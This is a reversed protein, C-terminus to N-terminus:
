VDRSWDQKDLMGFLKHNAKPFTYDDIEDKTIWRGTGNQQKILESVGTCHYVTFSISFHSYAHKITGIRKEPVVSFNCEEAIERVVAEEETENKRIKGGPFEWLGGLHGNHSRKQIYFTDGVWIIGAAVDYHPPKKRKKVEPYLLPNKKVGAICYDGIPCLDCTAEKSTCLASGLDMLAQNFDGPNNDSLYGQLRKAMRNHNQRSIKKLGALRYGIRMINSDIALKQKGFSISLIMSATYSGIGPLSMLIEYNEPFRRGYKETITRATKHINRCRTYYGLGEWYKVVDDFPTKAVIEVSPFAEIWKTFYPIVTDVQTQQLM